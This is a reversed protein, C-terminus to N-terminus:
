LKLEKEHPIAKWELKRTLIAKFFCYVYSLLFIPNYLVLKVKSVKINLKKDNKLLSITLLVFMLYIVTFICVLSMIFTLFSKTLLIDLLILFLGIVLYIIQNIGVLAEIRSGYKIKKINSKKKIEKIYKKRAEFYGKIWRTRQIITMGFKEPQEDYFIAENNYTTSINNLTCYLSLEYDETLSNFPFGGLKEIIDGKIYFGTGSISITNSYQRKRQNSITNLLSFSLASAASIVNNGNKTNRYGVGIEYGKKIDKSMEKIFNKDLVNDADFIFYAEYKKNDKLIEQIADDLAYGKRRKTLDKRLVINMKHKKAISVTLDKKDEVIIYVDKPDVKKTQNEISILLDEIVKSENRAPILICYNDSNSQKLKKNNTNNYFVAFYSYIVLIIGFLVLILGLYIM